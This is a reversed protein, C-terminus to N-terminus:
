TYNGYNLRRGRAQAKQKDPPDTCVLCIRLGNVWARGDRDDKVPEGCFACKAANYQEPPVSSNKM